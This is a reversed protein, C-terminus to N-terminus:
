EIVQTLTLQENTNNEYHGVAICSETTACSTNQLESKKTEPPNTTTLTEWGTIGHREALSHTENTTTQYSGVAVCEAPSTCDIGYLESRKAGPSPTTQVEWSSATRREALTVWKKATNKYAGVATCENTSACSVAQLESESAESPNSTSLIEWKSASWRVALMVLKYAKNEYVGVAVCENTSVCSVSKLEDQRAETPLPVTQLEWKSGNWREALALLEGASNIYHGVSTCESTSPCSVGALDGERAELPTLASQLEWKAGGKWDEALALPEGTSNLYHGVAVCNTSSACSTEQLNGEKAESPLVSPQESWKSGNWLEALPGAQNGENHTVGVVDCASSSVCSAGTLEDLEALPTSSEYSLENASWSGGIAEFTESGSPNEWGVSVCTNYMNCSVGLLYSTAAGSAPYASQYQWEKSNWTEALTRTTGTSTTYYGVTACMSASSCSLSYLKSAQAGSPVPASQLTWKSASWSEALAESVGSSSLYGGVAECTTATTCSISRLESSLAGTPTAASQLEWKSGSWVEALAFWKGATNEYSGATVCEGNSPCSVGYLESAKAESPSLPSLDEWASGNWREALAFWKGATNEYSGVAVCESASACSVSQLESEKAESPNATTQAEWQNHAWREGLTYRKHSKEYWGVAFCEGVSVCSVSRLANGTSEAPRPMAEMSWSEGSKHEALALIEGTSTMYRGVSVCEISVRCSIGALQSERDEEPNSPPEGLWATAGMRYSEDLSFLTGTSSDYDGGAMCVTASICSVSWLESYKASTPAYSSQTGWEKGNWREALTLVEGNAAKYEGVAVCAEVSGCSVGYLKSREAGSPTYTPKVEWKSGNFVESLTSIVNSSNTYEGVATCMSTSACSVSWLESSKAGAPNPSSEIEWKTGNWHEILTDFSHSESDTTYEGVATCSSVSVCSVGSFRSWQAGSPTPVTMLEWSTGNWAEALPMNVETAEDYYSGVAVCSAGSVCSIGLLEIGYGNAPNPTSVVYWEGGTWREALTVGGEGGLRTGVAMCVSPGTCSVGRLEPNLVDATHQVSWKEGNWVEALGASLGFTPSYRGVAVCSSVSTCSVGRVYNGKNAPSLSSPIVTTISRENGVSTGGANEAVIRFQYKTFPTLGKVEVSVPVESTGSGASVPSTRHWEGDAQRYEFFDQTTLGEPNVSGELVVAGEGADHGGITKVVPPPCFTKFEQNPEAAAGFVNKAVAQFDYKTCLKLGTVPTYVDSWKEEAALHGESSVSGYSSSTGYDFVYSTEFGEPDIWAALEASNRTVNRPFQTEVGPLPDRVGPGGFHWETRGSDVDGLSYFSANSVTEKDLETTEEEDENIIVVPATMWTAGPSSGPQGNGMQTTPASERDFVEGYDSESEAHTFQGGWFSGPIYGIWQTGAWIWWNGGRYEVGITFRATSPEFAEGPMIKAEVVPVFFKPDYCEGDVECEGEYNDRNAFIFFHPNASAGWGFGPDVDFGAEMTYTTLGYTVALQDISHAGSFSSVQPESIDTAYEMGIATRLTTNEVWWYCGGERCNCGDHEGKKACPPAVGPDNTAGLNSAASIEDAVASTSTPISDPVAVGQTLPSPVQGAPCLPKIAKAIAM